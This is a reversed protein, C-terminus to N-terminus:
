FDGPRSWLGSLMFNLNLFFFFSIIYDAIKILCDMNEVGRWGVDISLSSMGGVIRVLICLMITHYLFRSLLFFLISHKHWRGTNINIKGKRHSYCSAQFWICGGTRKTEEQDNWYGLNVVFLCLWWMLTWILMQGVRRAINQKLTANGAM